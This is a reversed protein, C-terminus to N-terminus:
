SQFHIDGESLGGQAIGSKGALDCDYPHVLDTASGPSWPNLCHSPVHSGPLPCKMNLSYGKLLSYFSKLM